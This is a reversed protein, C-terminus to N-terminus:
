LPIVEVGAEKFMAEAEAIQAGWRSLFDATQKPAAVYHIGRAVITKACNTCPFHTAYLTGGRVDFRANALANEEAHVILTYKKERDRLRADDVIRPPFGNYGLAIATKDTGVVVAGVKTSPDKSWNAIHHALALFRQDWEASQWRKAQPHVADNTMVRVKGSPIM